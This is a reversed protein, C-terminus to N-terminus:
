RKRVVYKRVLFVILGFTILSVAVVLAEYLLRDAVTIRGTRPNSVPIGIPPLFTALLCATGLALVERELWTAYKELLSIRQFSLVVAFYLFLFACLFLM